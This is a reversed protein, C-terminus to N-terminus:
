CGPQGPHGCCGRLRVIGLTRNRLTLVLKTFLPADSTRWNSFFARVHIRLQDRLRGM